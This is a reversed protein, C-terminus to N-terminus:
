EISRSAFCNLCHAVSLRSRASFDILLLAVTVIIAFIVYNIPFLVVHVHAATDPDSRFPRLVLSMQRLAGESESSM